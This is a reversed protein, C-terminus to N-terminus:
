PVTDLLFAAANKLDTNLAALERNLPALVDQDKLATAPSALELAAAIGSPASDPRSRHPSIVLALVIFLGAVAIVPKAWPFTFKWPVPVPGPVPKTRVARMIDAHLAPPPSIPGANRRLIQGLRSLARQHESPAAGQWPGHSNEKDAAWSARVRSAFDRM